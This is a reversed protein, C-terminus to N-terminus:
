SRACASHSSPVLALPRSARQLHSEGAQVLDVGLLDAQRMLCLILAGLENAALASPWGQREAAFRRLLEKLEGLTVTPHVDM